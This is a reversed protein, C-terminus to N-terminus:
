VHLPGSTGSAPWVVEAAHNGASPWTYLLPTPFCISGWPSAPHPPLPFSYWSRVACSHFVTLEDWLLSSSHHLTVGFVLLAPTHCLPCVPRQRSLFHSLAYTAWYINIVSRRHALHEGPGSVLPLFFVLTRSWPAYMMTIYLSSQKGEREAERREKWCNSSFM